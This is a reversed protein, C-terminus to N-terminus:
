KVREREREGERERGRERVPCTISCDTNDLLMIKVLVRNKELEEEDSSAPLIGRNRAVAQPETVRGGEGEGEQPAAPGEENNPPSGEDNDAPPQSFSPPPSYDNNPTPEAEKVEVKEADDAM